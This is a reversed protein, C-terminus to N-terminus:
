RAVVRLAIDDSFPPSVLTLGGGAHDIDEKKDIRGTM